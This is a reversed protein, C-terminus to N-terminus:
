TFRVSPHLFFFDLVVMDMICIRERRREFYIYMHIKYIHSNEVRSEIQGVKQTRSSYSKVYLFFFSIICFQSLHKFKYIQLWIHLITYKCSLIYITCLYICLYLAFKVKTNCNKNSFIEQKLLINM